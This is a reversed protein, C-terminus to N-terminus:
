QINSRLIRQPAFHMFNEVQKCIKKYCDECLYVPIAKLTKVEEKSEESNSESKKKEVTTAPIGCEKCKYLAVFDGCIDCDVKEFHPSLKFRGLFPEFEPGPIPKEDDKPNYASPKISMRYFSM